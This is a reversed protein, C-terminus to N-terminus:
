SSSPVTHSLRSLMTLYARLLMVVTMGEIERYRRAARGVRLTPESLQQLPTLAAIKVSPM